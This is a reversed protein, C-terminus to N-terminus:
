DRSKLFQLEGFVSPDCWDLNDGGAWALATERGIAPDDCDNLQIDFGVVKGPQPRFGLADFPISALLAYGDPKMLVSASGVPKGDVFVRAGGGESTNLVIVVQRNFEPLYSRRKKDNASDFYLEVSDMNYAEYPPRDTVLTQDRVRVMVHFADKDWATCVRASLDGDNDPAAGDSVRTPFKTHWAPVSADVDFCSEEDWSFKPGGEQAASRQVCRIRGKADGPSGSAQKISDAVPQPELADPTFAVSELYCPMGESFEPARIRITDGTVNIFQRERLDGSVSDFFYVGFIGPSLGSVQVEPSYKRKDQAIGEMWILAGRDTSVGFARVDRALSRVRNAALPAQLLARWDVFNCFRRIAANARYEEDPTDSWQGQDSWRMGTGAAGSALSVWMMNAVWRPQYGTSAPGVEMFLVPKGFRLYGGFKKHTLWDMVSSIGGVGRAPHNGYYHPGVVDIVPLRWVAENDRQSFSTTILHRNSDNERVFAGIKEVWAVEAEPSAKFVDIENLLDWALLNTRSGWRDIVYKWKRRQLELVREDTVFDSSKKMEGSVVYAATPMAHIIRWTDWPTLIIYINYRAALDFVEDIRRAQEENFVGTKPELWYKPDDDGEVWLRLTNQGHAAMNQLYQEITMGRPLRRGAAINYRNQGIAIFPSGDDHVLYRGNPSVRRVFGASKQALVATTGGDKVGAAPEAPKDGCEIRIDDLVVNATGGFCVFKLVVLSSPNMEPKSDCGFESFKITVEHWNTDVLPIKKRWKFVYSEELEVTMEGAGSGKLWFSIAKPERSLWEAGEVKKQVLAWGGPKVDFAVQGAGSGNKADGIRTVLATSGGGGNSEWGTSVAPAKELEKEFDEVVVM